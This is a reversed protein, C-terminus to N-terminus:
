YHYKCQAILIANETVKCVLRNEITIRRSLYGSWNYKLPEPEGTGKFPDRKIEKILANIKKFIKKDTQQWYLYDEWAEDAFTLNM